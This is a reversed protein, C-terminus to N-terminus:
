KCSGDPIQSSVSLDLRQLGDARADALDARLHPEAIDVPSPWGNSATALRATRQPGKAGNRSKALQFPTAIREGM